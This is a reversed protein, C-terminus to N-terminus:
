AGFRSCRIDAAHGTRGACGIWEDEFGARVAIDDLPEAICFRRFDNRVFRSQDFFQAGIPARKAQRRMM